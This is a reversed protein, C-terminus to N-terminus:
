IPKSPFNFNSFQARGPFRAPRKSERSKENRLTPQAGVLAERRDAALERSVWWIVEGDFGPRGAV